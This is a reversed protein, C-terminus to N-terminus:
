ENEGWHLNQKWQFRQMDVRGDPLLEVGEDILLERRLESYSGGTISGDAKVVRQWPLNEPCVSLAWGVSRAAKPNGLLAAIQGYSVVKGFPIGEVVEYVRKFFNHKKSEEM